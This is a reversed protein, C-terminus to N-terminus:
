GKVLLVWKCAECFFVLKFKHLLGGIIAQCLYEFSRIGSYNKEDTQFVKDVIVKHRNGDRGEFMFNRPMPMGTSTFWVDCAIHFMEEKEQLNVLDYVNVAEAPDAIEYGFM